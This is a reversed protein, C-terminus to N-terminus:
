SFGCKFFNTNSLYDQKYERLTMRHIEALKNELERIKLKLQFNEQRLDNEYHRHQTQLLEEPEM